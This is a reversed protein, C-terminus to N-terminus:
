REGEAAYHVISTDVLWEVPARDDTYVSGGRLGDGLRGAARTALTRLAGPLPAHALAAGTLPRTSALVLSNTPEIPDRAVYPFATRLTASLVKELADSDDPHGVNIIITGGPALRERVLAFFERTTLYFPIYPQRYTDLFIADYRASTRRLFPRADEAVMRLQPRPQLGFYRRGIDFLKGDIDVADIRTSPFYRAYARATTGGANGLIAIRQPPASAGAAFPLVLFGDWYDGTLVSGARWESHVAQGENLELKRMGDPEEVVRAYQYPTEAEYLVRGEEAPKVTGVPIALLAAVGVPVLWFRRPLGAAAVASVALAFLIFTRQTGVLPILLLAALFTGVLSGVTGVAYLRGATEGSDEVRELKLRIAWPSAAGLMLVPVAVLALTGFLSGAFAGVSIDDFARVSLSLFPHAVLPVLALLVAAALVLTCLGRLHPHRDALRGGVYYGASLAVLVVAITNAWVITSAGFFPAMLRAAAIEAGLTSSGVVFVLLELPPRAREAPAATPTPPPIEEL